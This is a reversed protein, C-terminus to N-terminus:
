PAPAPASPQQWQPFFSLTYNRASAADMGDTKPLIVVTPMFAFKQGDQERVSIHTKMFRDLYAYFDHSVNICGLSIANDSVQPSALREARRESAIGTWLPHIVYSSNDAVLFGYGRGGEYQKPDIAFEQPTFKGAPTTSKDTFIDEGKGRGYLAPTRAIIRGNEVIMLEARNKDMVVLDREGKSVALAIMMQAQESVGLEAQTAVRPTEAMAAVPAAWVSMAM